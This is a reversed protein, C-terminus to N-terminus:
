EDQQDNDEDVFSAVWIENSPRSKVIDIPTRVQERRRCAHKDHCQDTAHSDITDPRYEVVGVSPRRTWRRVPCLHSPWARDTPRLATWEEGCSEPHGAM